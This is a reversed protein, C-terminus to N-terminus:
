RMADSLSDVIIFQSLVHMISQHVDEVIGYNNAKVHLSIDALEALRGGSFGSLGISKMGMKKAQLATNIINESNGSSSILIVLDGKSGLMEIQRSFCHEYGFDNALATLLSSNSALSTTKLPDKGPTYTGKTWDCCLHDSISASGGNGASYVHHHNNITERLLKSGQDLANKDVTSFAESLFKQYAEFYESAQKATESPFDNKKRPDNFANSDM